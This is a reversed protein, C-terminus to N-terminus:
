GDKHRQEDHRQPSNLLPSSSNGASKSRLARFGHKRFVQRQTFGCKCLFSRLETAEDISGDFPVTQKTTSTLEDPQLSLSRLWASCHKQPLTCELSCPEAHHPLVFRLQSIDKAGHARLAIRCHTEHQGIGISVRHCKVQLCDNLGYRWAPM